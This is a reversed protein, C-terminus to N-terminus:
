IDRVPTKITAGGSCIRTFGQLGYEVIGMGM